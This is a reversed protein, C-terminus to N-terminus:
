KEKSKEALRKAQVERRLQEFTMSHWGAIDLRMAELAIADFAMMARDKEIAETMKQQFSALQDEMKKKFLLQKDTEM